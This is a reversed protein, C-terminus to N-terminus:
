RRPRRLWEELTKMQSLVLGLGLVAIVVFVWVTVM